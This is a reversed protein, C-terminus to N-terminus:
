KYQYISNINKRLQEDTYHFVPGGEYAPKSFFEPLRDDEKTFGAKENFIREIRITERAMERCKEMTWEGGYAGAYLGPVVAPDEVILASIFNCMFDNTLAIRIQTDIILAPIEEDKASPAILPGFTHDAGQTSVAYSIGNGKLGRPDYAPIGQRKVVPIKTVGLAKGVAEVSERSLYGQKEQVDQLLPILSDRQADPYGALIKEIGSSSAAVTKTM